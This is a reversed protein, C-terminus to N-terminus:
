SRKRSGTARVSTSPTTRHFKCNELKLARRVSWTKTRVPTRAPQPFRMATIDECSTQPSDAYALVKTSPGGLVHFKTLTSHNMCCPIVWSVQLERERRKPYFKVTRNTFASYILTLQFELGISLPVWRALNQLVVNNRIQSVINTISTRQWAARWYRASRM